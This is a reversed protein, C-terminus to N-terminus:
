QKKKSKKKSGSGKGGSSKASGSKSGSGKGSSSKASGSKSGSGKGGSNKVSGSKSSSVQGGEGSDVPCLAGGNRSEGAIVEFPGYVSGPGIPESCSTHIKVYFDGDIFIEANKGLTGKKDQGVVTFVESPMVTDEFVVTGDGQEFKVSAPADGNYVLSLSTVKGDCPGCEQNGSVDITVVGTSQAGSPDTITYTFSDAGVFGPAPEYTISGNGNDIVSGNGAQSFSVISLADGDPDSDNALLESDPIIISIDQFTSYADPNAIPPNNQPGGTVNITVTATLTGGNGDSITYTFSDTGTFGPNPTYNFLGLGQDSVNGNTPQTYSVVSITDGDPDFDNVLLESVGIWLGIGEQTTFADDQAIPPNNVFPENITVTVVAAAIGGNNDSIRYEFTADGTFGPDPTFIVQESQVDYSVSGSIPNFVDILSLVDGDFDSDNNLLPSLQNNIDDLVLTTDPLTYLQDDFAVPPNNSPNLFPTFTLDKQCVSANGAEDRIVITAIYSGIPILTGAVPVQELTLFEPASQNDVATIEDSAGSNLYLSFDPVVGLGSPLAELSLASGCDITPPFPEVVNVTSTCVVPAGVGDSVVFEIFNNGVEYDNTFSVTATTFGGVNGPIINTQVVIDNLKVQVTLTDGNIDEVTTSMTVEVLPSDPGAEISVPSDCINTPLDNIPPPPPTGGCGAGSGVPMSLIGVVFSYFDENTLGPVQTPEPMSLNISSLGLGLASSVDIDRVSWLVTDGPLSGLQFFVDDSGGPHNDTINFGIGGDVYGQGGNDGFLNGGGGLLGGYVTYGNAEIPPDNFSQGDSVHLQLTGTTAATSIGTLSVSWGDSDYNSSESSDNGEFIIVDQDNAPNGDDYIVIMSVGSPTEAITMDGIPPPFGVSSLPDSKVDTPFALTYPGNGLGLANVEATVDVFATRSSRFFPQWGNDSSEWTKSASIAFGELSASTLATASPVAGITPGHWYLYAATVSGPLSVSGAFELTAVGENLVGGAAAVAFDVGCYTPDMNTIQSASVDILPLALSALM